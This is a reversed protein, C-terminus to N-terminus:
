RDGGRDWRPMRPARGWRQSIFERLTRLEAIQRAIASARQWFLALAQPRTMPEPDEPM